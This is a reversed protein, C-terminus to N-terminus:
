LREAEQRQLKEDIIARLVQQELRRATEPDDPLNTSALVLRVRDALERTSVIDDNVVAAIGQVAQAVAPTAALTGAAPALLVLATAVVYVPLTTPLGCRM